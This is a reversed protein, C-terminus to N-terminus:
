YYSRSLFTVESLVEDLFNKVTGYIFPM